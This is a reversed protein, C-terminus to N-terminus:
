TQIRRYVYGQFTVVNTVSARIKLNRSGTLPVGPELIAKGSKPPIIITSAVPSTSDSAVGNATVYTNVEVDDTHFNNVWLTIYDHATAHAVHVLQAPHTTSTVLVPVGEASTSLFLSLHDTAM